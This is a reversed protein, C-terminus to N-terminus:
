GESSGFQGLVCQLPNQLWTKKDLEADAELSQGDCQCSFKHEQRGAIAPYAAITNSQRVRMAVSELSACGCHPCIADVDHKCTPCHCELFHDEPAHHFSAQPLEAPDVLDHVLTQIRRHPHFACLFNYNIPNNFLSHVLPKRTKRFCHSFRTFVPPASPTRVGSRRFAM